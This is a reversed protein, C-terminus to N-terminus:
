SRAANAPGQAQSQVRAARRCEDPTMGTWLHFARAFSKDNGFGVERAIQKIPRQSRQLLELARARRQEDKISQLAMGESALQRHLSRPSLALAAALSEATHALDDQLLHRVRMALLRDQRYPRVMLPLARRLMQELAAGDRRLPLDLYRADFRLSAAPADFVVPGPFLRAYVQAHPPAAFPFEAAQLPIRSDIWWCALGHVNRLLSLLAFERPASACLREDIRVSAHLDTAAITLQVDDTLLGHHRCWLALAAGLTPAGMSARALMGYSGWPLRRRFWGPAEDDLEQMAAFCLREFQLASVHGAELGAGGGTSSAIQAKALASAASLGRQAYAQVVAGVFAAPTGSQTSLGRALAFSQSSSMSTPQIQLWKTM